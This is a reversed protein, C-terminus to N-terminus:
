LRNLQQVHERQYAADRNFEPYGVEGHETIDLGRQEHMTSVRLGISRALLTYMLLASMLVWVFAIGVGILQVMVQNLDFMNGKLFLGAAITGWVGSFGHVAVAGVVDDLRLKELMWTGFMTVIGGVLGTLIAYPLDMSACGATISVLGGLSGNVVYAMLVPQRTVWATLLAGVAGAAGAMHTNLLIPGIETGAALTSGGNFGFWGFWLLFGGMAVLSLNHGPIMHVEGKSGFRGLRPGLIMIGALACWGGVSHVVTSGAFDIFGMQKLWGHENWAWSGFVPYIVAMIGCAGLLYAVFSTREAMAGSVITAATAAFMVQFFLMSASWDDAYALAFHDMGIWGSPNSGFMLGYGVLWFLLAGVALDMYNKMMVNVANKARAMGSELMAFGAQMMFVLAGSIAVWVTDMAQAHAAGEEASVAPCSIFYLCLFVSLPFLPLHM